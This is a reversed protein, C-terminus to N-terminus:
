ARDRAKGDTRRKMQKSIETVKLKDLNNKQKIKEM